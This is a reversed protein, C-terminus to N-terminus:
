GHDRDSVVLNSCYRVNPSPPPYAFFWLHIDRLNRCQLSLSRIFRPMERDMQNCSPPYRTFNKYKERRTSNDLEIGWIKSWVKPIGGPSYKHRCILHTTWRCHRYRTRSHQNNTIQKQKNTTLQQNKTKPQQNDTLPQPKYSTPRQNNM